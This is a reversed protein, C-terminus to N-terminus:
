GMARARWHSAAICAIAAGRYCNSVPDRPRQIRPKRCFAAGAPSLPIPTVRANLEIPQFGCFMRKLAISAIMPSGSTELAKLPCVGFPVHTRFATSPAAWSEPLMRAKESTNVVCSGTAHSAGMLVTHGDLLDRLEATSM